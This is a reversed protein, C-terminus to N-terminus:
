LDLLNFVISFAADTVIVLFIAQVVSLTTQRGVSDASGTAQFGRYCGVLAIIVAFVPAKCLGTLYTSMVIAEELRRLFVDFTVDLRSQAMIMGGLVGTIDTYVTLLPLVVVLALMKPLVLLDMPGVGVTRLADIEETVKMTGIQATYASGSRGAVIIATMLPSLERLMALGVLDAIFINAGFRQLQDAGQYAIVIGMRFSLLGTIPLADFGASQVNYLIARWRIRSPQAVSRLLATFAEGIFSVFGLTNRLDAWAQRGLSAVVGPRAPPGRDPVVDRSAILRLLTDFEPRLGDIRVGRGPKGLARATRHLLWAGSTDLASIASADIIFEREGPASLADLTPELEAIGRVTWAGTCRAALAATGAVPEAAVILQAISNATM